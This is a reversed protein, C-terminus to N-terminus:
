KIRPQARLFFLPLLLELYSIYYLAVLMLNQQSVLIENNGLCVSTVLPQKLYVVRHITM